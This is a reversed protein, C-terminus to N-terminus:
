LFFILALGLSFSLKKVGLSTKKLFIEYHQVRQNVRGRALNVMRIFFNQSQREENKMKFEYM